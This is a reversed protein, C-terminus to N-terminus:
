MALESGQHRHLYLFGHEVPLGDRPAVIAHKASTRYWSTCLDRERIKTEGTYILLHKGMEENTLIREAEHSAPSANPGATTELVVNQQASQSASPTRSAAHNSHPPVEPESPRMVADRFHEGLSADLPLRLAAGREEVTLRAHVCPAPSTGQVVSPGVAALLVAQPHGQVTNLQTAGLGFAFSAQWSATCNYSLSLGTTATPVMLCPGMGFAPVGLTATPGLGYATASTHANDAM